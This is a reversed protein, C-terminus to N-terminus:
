VRFLFQNGMIKPQGISAACEDVARDIGKAWWGDLGYDDGAIVGGPKVVRSFNELDTKVAEYSHDGDIYVWDLSHTVLHEAGENSSKRWIIIEGKEIQEQFRKLVSSYIEDM